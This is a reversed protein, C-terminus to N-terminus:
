YKGTTEEKEVCQRIKEILKRSYKMEEENPDDGYHHWRRQELFLCTRLDILSEDPKTDAVEACHQPSGWFTYGDFTQAFDCIEGWDSDPAPIDVLELKDALNRATTNNAITTLMDPVSIPELNIIVPGSFHDTFNEEHWQKCVRCLYYTTHHGNGYWEHYVSAAHIMHRKCQPCSQGDAM